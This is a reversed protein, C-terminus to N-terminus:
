ESQYSDVPGLSLALTTKCQDASSRAARRLQTYFREPLAVPHGTVSGVEEVSFVVDEVSLIELCFAVTRRRDPSFLETGSILPASSDLNPATGPSHM